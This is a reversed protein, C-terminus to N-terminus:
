QVSNDVYHKRCVAEYLEAGGVTIELNNLNKRHTFCASTGDKCKVCYANQYQVSSVIPLLASVSSFEQRHYGGNLAAIIVDKGDRESAIMCFKRADAFFQGEDVIIASAAQYKPLDLLGMLDSRMVCPVKTGDHTCLYESGYRTDSSHNVVLVEKGIQKYNEMAQSLATSKGSFMGGIILRVSM